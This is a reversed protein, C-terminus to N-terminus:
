QLDSEEKWQKNVVFSYVVQALSKRPSVRPIAAKESWSSDSGLDNGTLNLTSPRSPKTSRPLPPVRPQPQLCHMRESQGSYNFQPNFRAQKLFPKTQLPTWLNLGRGSVEHLVSVNERKAESLSHSSFDNASLEGSLLLTASGTCHLQLLRQGACQVLKLVFISREPKQLRLFWTGFEGGGKQKTICRLSRPPNLQNFSDSTTDLPQIM